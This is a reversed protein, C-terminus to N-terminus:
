DAFRWLRRMAPNGSRDSDRVFAFKVNKGRQPAFDCLLNFRYSRCYM